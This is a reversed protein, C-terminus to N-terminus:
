GLVLPEALQTIQLTGSVQHLGDCVEKLDAVRSARELKQRVLALTEDLADKVWDLAIYSQQQNM